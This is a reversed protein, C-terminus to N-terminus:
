TGFCHSLMRQILQHVLMWVGVIALDSVVVTEISTAAPLIVEVTSNEKENRRVLSTSNVEITNDIQAAKEQVPENTTIEEEDVMDSWRNSQQVAIQSAGAATTVQITDVVHEVNAEGDAVTLNDVFSIHDVVHEVKIIVPEPLSDVDSLIPRIVTAFNCDSTQNAATSNGRAVSAYSQRHFSQQSVGSTGESTKNVDIGSTPTGSNEPNQSMAQLDNINITVQNAEATSLGPTPPIQTQNQYLPNLNPSQTSSTIPNPNAIPNPTPSTTM